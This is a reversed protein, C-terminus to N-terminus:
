ISIPILLKQKKLNMFHKCKLYYDKFITKCFYLIYIFNSSTNTISLFLKVIKCIM